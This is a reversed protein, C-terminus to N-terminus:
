TTVKAPVWNTSTVFMAADRDAALMTTLFQEAALRNLYTRQKTVMGDNRVWRVMWIQQGSPRLPAPHNGNISHHSSPSRM